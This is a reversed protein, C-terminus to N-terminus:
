INGNIGMYQQYLEWNYNVGSYSNDMALNSKGWADGGSAAVHRTRKKDRTLPTLPLAAARHFFQGHFGDLFICVRVRVYVYEMNYIYICHIYMYLYICISNIYLM